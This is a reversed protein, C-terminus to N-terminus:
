EDRSKATLERDPTDVARLPRKSVDKTLLHHSPNGTVKGDPSLRGHKDASVEMKKVPVVAKPKKMDADKGM